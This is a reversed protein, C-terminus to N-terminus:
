GRPLTFRIVTGHGPASEAAIEGGHAEVLGKANALGLGAGPSEPPRTCREFV